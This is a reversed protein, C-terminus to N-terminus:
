VLQGNGARGGPEMTMKRGKKEGKKEVSRIMDRRVMAVMDDDDDLVFAGPASSM